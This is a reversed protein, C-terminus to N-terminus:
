LKEKTIIAIKEQVTQEIKDEPQEPNITFDPPFHQMFEANVENTRQKNSSYSSLVHRPLKFFTFREPMSDWSLSKLKREIYKESPNVYFVMVHYDSKEIFKILEMKSGANSDFFINVRKEIAAKSLRLLISDLVNTFNYGKDYIMTRIRDSSITFRSTSGLLSSVTSTKGSGVLGVSCFVIQRPSPKIMSLDQLASTTVEDIVETPPDPMFLFDRWGSFWDEALERFLISTPYADLDKLSKVVVYKEGEFVQMESYDVDKVVYYTVTWDEGHIAKTKQYNGYRVFCDKSIKLSTEEHLERHAADLPTEGPELGGGFTTVLGPNTIGPKNDRQQLVLEGDKGVLLIEANHPIRGTTM